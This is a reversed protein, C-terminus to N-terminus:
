TSRVIVDAGIVGIINNMSGYVPIAITQCTRKTIASIYPDSIVFGGQIAQKFWSRNKANLLGAKPISIIFAGEEDNLWIAEIETHKDLIAQLTLELEALSLTMLQENALAELAKIAGEQHSHRIDQPPHGNETRENDILPNTTLTTQFDQTAVNLAESVQQLKHIDKRQGDMRQVTEGIRTITSLIVAQEQHLCQRMFDAAQHQHESQTTTDIVIADFRQVQEGIHQLHQKMNLMQNAAEEVTHDTDLISVHMENSQQDIRQFIPASTLITIKSQDSLQRMRSAIVDFGLGAEGLRAAEISANLSLLAIEESLSSLQNYISGLQETSSQLQHVNSSARQQAAQLQLMSQDAQQLADSISRTERLTSESTSRLVAACDRLRESAAAVEDTAELSQQLQHLSSESSDHLAQSDIASQETTNQLSSILGNVEEVAAALRDAAVQSENWMNQLLDESSQEHLPSPRSPALKHSRFARYSVVLTITLLFYTLYTLSKDFAIHSSVFTEKMFIMMITIVTLTFVFMSRARPTWKRFIM